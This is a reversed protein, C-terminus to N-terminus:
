KYNKLLFNKLNKAKIEEKKEPADPTESVIEIETEPAIDKRNTDQNLPQYTEGTPGTDSDPNKAQNYIEIISTKYNGISHTEPNIYMLSWIIIVCIMCLSFLMWIRTKPMRLRELIQKSESSFKSEYNWFVEKEEQTGEQTVATSNELEVKELHDQIEKREAEAAAQKIEEESRWRTKLRDLSLAHHTWAEEPTKQESFDTQDTVDQQKEQSTKLTFSSKTEVAKKETDITETAIQSDTTDINGENLIPSIETEKTDKAKMLANLNIKTNESM